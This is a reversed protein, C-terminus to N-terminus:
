SPTQNEAGCSECFRVGLRLLGGCNTCNSGLAPLPGSSVHHAQAVPPKKRLALFAAVVTAVTIGSGVIVGGILLPLFTSARFGPCSRGVYSVIFSQGDLAVDGTDAFFCSYTADSLLVRINPLSDLVQNVDNVTANAGLFRISGFNAVSDNLQLAPPYEVVWEASVQDGNYALTTSFTSPTSPSSSNMAMITLSWNVASVKAIKALITTGPGVQGDLARIRVPGFQDEPTMSYFARYKITGNQSFQSTGIQILDPFSPSLPGIGVIETIVSANQSARISPVIWRGAVSDVMDGSSSNSYDAMYGGWKFSALNNVTSAFGARPGLVSMALLLFLITSILITLNRVVSKRRLRINRQKHGLTRPM